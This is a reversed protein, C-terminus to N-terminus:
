LSLYFITSLFDIKKKLFKHEYFKFCRLEYFLKVFKIFKSMVFYSLSVNNMM